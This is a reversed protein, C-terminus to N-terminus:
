HDFHMKGLNQCCRSQSWCVGFELSFYSLNLSSRDSILFEHVFQFDGFDECLIVAVSQNIWWIALFSVKKYKSLARHLMLALM